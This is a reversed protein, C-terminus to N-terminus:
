RLPWFFYGPSATNDKRGISMLTATLPGGILESVTDVIALTTFLQSYHAPDNIWTVIGQLAPEAGEGLGMEFMAVLLWTGSTAEFIAFFSFVSVIL